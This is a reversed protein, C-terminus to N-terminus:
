LFLLSSPKATRSNLMASAGITRLDSHTLASSTRSSFTTMPSARGYLYTCGRQRRKQKCRGGREWAGQKQKQMKRSTSVLPRSRISLSFFFNYKSAFRFSRLSMTDCLIGTLVYVDVWSSVKNCLCRHGHDVVDRIHCPHTGRHGKCACPDAQM